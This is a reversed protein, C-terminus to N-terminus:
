DEKDLVGMLVITEWYKDACVAIFERFKHKSDAVNELSMVFVGYEGIKKMTADEHTCFSVQITKSM